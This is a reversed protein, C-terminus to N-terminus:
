KKSKLLKEFDDNEMSINIYYLKEKEIIKLALVCFDVNVFTNKVNLVKLLVLPYISRSEIVLPKSYYIKKDLM